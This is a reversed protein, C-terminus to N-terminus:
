WAGPLPIQPPAFTKPEVKSCGARPTQTEDLRKKENNRTVSFWLVIYCKNYADLAFALSGNKWVIWVTWPMKGFM